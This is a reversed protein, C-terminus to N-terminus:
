CISTVYTLVFTLNINSEFTGSTGQPHPQAIHSPQDLVNSSALCPVMETGAGQRTSARISM